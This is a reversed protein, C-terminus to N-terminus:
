KPQLIAVIVYTFAGGVTLILVNLGILFLVIFPHAKSREGPQLSRRYFPTWILLIIGLLISIAHVGLEVPWVVLAGFLVLGPNTLISLPLLILAFISLYFFIKQWTVFKSM